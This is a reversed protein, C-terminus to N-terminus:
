LLLFFHWVNIMLCHEIKNSHNTKLILFNDSPGIREAIQAWSYDSYATCIIVQLEPDVKWLHEITELGDWGPPMRMDVFAITYPYGDEIAQKLMDLGDRGQLAGDVQFTLGAPHKEERDDFLKSEIERFADTNGPRELISQFDLHISENDDIILVRDRYKSSHSIM